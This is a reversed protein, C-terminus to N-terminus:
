EIARAGLIMRFRPDPARSKASDGGVPRHDHNSDAPEGPFNHKAAM